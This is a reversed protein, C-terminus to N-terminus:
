LVQLSEELTKNINFGLDLPHDLLVLDFFDKPLPWEEDNFVTDTGLGERNAATFFHTIKSPNLCPPMRGGFYLGAFGPISPLVDALVQQEREFFLSLREQRKM